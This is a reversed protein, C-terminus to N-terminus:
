SGRDWCSDFAEPDFAGDACNTKGDDYDDYDYCGVEDDNGFIDRALDVERQQEWEELMKDLTVGRRETGSGWPGLKKTPSQPEYSPSHAEAVRRVSEEIVRGLWDGQIRKLYLAHL